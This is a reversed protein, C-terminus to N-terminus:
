LKHTALYAAQRQVLDLAADVGQRCDVARTAILGALADIVNNFDNIQFDKVKLQDILAGATLVAVANSCAWSGLAAASLRRFAAQWQSSSINENPM